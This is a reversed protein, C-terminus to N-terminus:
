PPDQRVGEKTSSPNFVAKTKRMAEFLAGSKPKGFCSWNLFAERAIDHKQRVYTHWGPVNFGCSDNEIRRCPICHAVAIKMCCEYRYLMQKDCKSWCPTWIQTKANIMDDLNMNLSCQARFLVPKHDSVIVEEIIDIDTILKDVSPSSLIHDVWSTKTGDDSIYTYVGNLRNMDSCVLNNDNAFQMFEPYFRSGLGCNFDGAILTHVTDSDIIIAQLKSLCDLYLEMSYDDEYNTPMYVNLLLWPGSKTIMQLGTIRSENSNVVKIGNALQKRYLIATGGYPRGVLIHSSVDVASLGISYFEPHISNLINLETPLLWHEQLLLIDCNDCLNRVAHLCNKVSRCNFSCVIIAAGSLLDTAM